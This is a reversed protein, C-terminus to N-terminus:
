EDAKYRVEGGKKGGNGEKLRKQWEDVRRMVELPTLNMLDLSRLEEVIPHEKREVLPAFLPLTDDGKKTRPATEGEGLEKHVRLDEEELTKLVERARQIVNSPLGAMQAVHIGYSHDCGGPVIKRLFIVEDQWERVSVNYNKVRSLLAELEVLEHYHTAFMTKAARHPTNHLYEVIAWALSLGDFTSTGRGVEDFLVLSKPTANNLINATEHMEVLFTSEGGALNDHAGVRTFLRDTLGIEANEAPVWSGMHALLVILATQRLYTSKGAMNPGTIVLIQEDGNDLRADNPVFTGKAILREVVPHRGNVIRITDDLTVKPRGYRERAAVEALGAVCDIQALAHAQRLLDQAKSAVSDRVRVFLDYELRAAEEEAGLVKAEWEKLEPTIYREANVLTQKRTYDEPVKDRHTNSVEIYYGFARNYGVKLSPIGTRERETAQLRTIWQKGGRGIERLEDLDASVGERIIGGETLTVPPDEVIQRRILDVIERLDGLDGVAGRIFEATTDKLLNGVPEAADLSDALAALERPTARGCCIRSTLREIDRVNALMERFEGRVLTNEIFWGIADLRANIRSLDKLPRALWQRLLRGGMPTRTEDIIAILTARPNGPMLPAFLELNRQTPEDIILHNARNVVALRRMHELSTLQNDQLYSLVAGAAAIGATLDEAGFGKLSSVKFHELLRERAVALGFAWDEMPTLVTGPVQRAFTQRNEVVWARAALVEAPGIRRLESFLEKASVEMVRFEGTSLDAEALGATSGSISIGVLFNNRKEDLTTESLTTGPTVVEIIGRKVIGKAKKPDELQEVIVFSKGAKTLKDTYSALQHHPFGALPVEDKGDKAKDRSTLTLGLVKAAEKADDFFTEYFDGMRFLVLKDRHQRKFAMYQELVPTLRNDQPM